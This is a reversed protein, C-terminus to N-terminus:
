QKQYRSNKTEAEQYVTERDIFKTVIPAMRVMPVRAQASPTPVAGLRVAGAALFGAVATTRLVEVTDLVCDATALFGTPLVVLAVAFRVVFAGM